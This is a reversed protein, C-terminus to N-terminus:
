EKRPINNIWEEWEGLTYWKDWWHAKCNLCIITGKNKGHGLDNLNTSRCKECGM